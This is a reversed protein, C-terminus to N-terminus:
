ARYHLALSSPTAERAARPQGPSGPKGDQVEISVAAEGVAPQAHRPIPRWPCSASRGDLARTDVGPSSRGPATLTRAIHTTLALAAHVGNAEGKEFDNDTVAM